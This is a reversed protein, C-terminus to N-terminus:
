CPRRWRDCRGDIRYRHGRLVARHLRLACRPPPLDRYEATIRRAPPDGTRRAAALSSRLFCLARRIRFPNGGANLLGQPVTNGDGALLVGDFDDVLVALRIGIAGRFHSRLEDVVVFHIDHGRRRRGVRDIRHGVLAFEGPNRAHGGVIRPLGPEERALAIRLFAEFPGVM